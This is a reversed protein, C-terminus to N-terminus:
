EKHWEKLGLLIARYMKLARNVAKGRFCRKLDAVFSKHSSLTTIVANKNYESVYHKMFTLTNKCKIINMLVKSTPKTSRADFDAQLIAILPVFLTTLEKGPLIVVGEM